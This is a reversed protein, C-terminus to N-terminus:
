AHTSIVIPQWRIKGQVVTHTHHNQPPLHNGKTSVAEHGCGECRYIGSLPAPTSPGYVLDFERGAIVNLFNAYKYNAM